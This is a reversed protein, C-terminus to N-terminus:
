PVVVRDGAKVGGTVQVFGDAFSGPTVAVLKTSAGDVVQVAYGGEALALLAKVPVALVGTATSTTFDVSVSGDPLQTAPPVVVTVVTTSSASSSGGGGGGGGSAGGSGSASSSAAQTTSSFVTGTVPPGSAPTITVAAGPTALGADTQTLDVTVIRATSTVTMVAGSAPDGAQASWGAVRVPGPQFVVDDRLVIGTRPLGLSEQWDEVAAATGSTFTQDVTFGSYGLAALNEELQEVDPGDSVGEQLTRWMPRDGIMVVAAPLGDVEVLSGNRDVVTGPAALGTIVGPGSTTAGSGSSSAGAPTTAAALSAAGGRTAPAVTTTTTTPETGAGAATSDGALKVTDTNGYGVTGTESKTQSLDRTQVVATNRAPATAAAAKDTGASCAGLLLAGGAVLGVAVVAAGRRRDPM